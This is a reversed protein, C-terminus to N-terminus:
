STKLNDTLAKRSLKYLSYVLIIQVFVYICCTYILSYRTLLLSLALHLVSTAFTVLMLQKNRHYYFLYNSYLFYFCQGLGQLSLILFYPISEAYRPLLLPTLM